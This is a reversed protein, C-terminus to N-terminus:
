NKMNENDNNTKKQINGSFLMIPKSELDYDRIYEVFDKAEQDSRAVEKFLYSLVIYKYSKLNIENNDKARFFALM